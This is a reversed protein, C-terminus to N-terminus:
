FQAKLADIERVHERLKTYAPRERIRALAWRVAEARSSAIGATILADLTELEVPGLRAMVPTLEGGAAREELGRDTRLMIRPGRPEGEDGDALFELRRAEPLRQTLEHRFEKIAAHHAREFERLPPEGDEPEGAPQIVVRVVLEGPEIVPDDGYQLLVVRQVVDGPFRARVEEEIKREIRDLAAREM